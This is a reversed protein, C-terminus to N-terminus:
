TDPTYYDYAELPPNERGFRAVLRSCADLAPKRYLNEVAAIEEDKKALTDPAWYRRSDDVPLDDTESDIGVFDLFDPDFEDVGTRFRLAALQRSGEIIGVNGCLMAQAISAVKRRNSALILEPLSM